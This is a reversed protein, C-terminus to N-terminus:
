EFLLCNKYAPASETFGGPDYTIFDFTPIPISFPGAAPILSTDFTLSGTYTFGSDFTGHQVQPNTSSVIIFTSLTSAQGARSFAAVLFVLLTQIRLRM